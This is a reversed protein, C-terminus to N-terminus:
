NQVAARLTLRTDVFEDADFFVVWDAGHLDRARDFLFTNRNGEDFIVCRREILEIPLGEDIMARVIVVTRDNSGDDLVIVSDMQALHHRIVAEIIDDENLTRVVGVIKM